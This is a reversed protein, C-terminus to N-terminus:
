VSLLNRSCKELMPSTVSQTILFVCPPVSSFSELLPQRRSCRFCCIERHKPNIPYLVSCIAVKACFYKWSVNMSVLRISTEKANLRFSRAFNLSLLEHDFYEAPVLAFSLNFLSSSFVNCFFFFFFSSSSSPVSSSFFSGFFRNIPTRSRILISFAAAFNFFFSCNTEGSSFINSSFIRSSGFNLSYMANISGFLLNAAFNQDSPTTCSSSSYKDEPPGGACCVFSASMSSVSPPFASSSESSSSYWSKSFSSLLSSSLLLLLLSSISESESSTLFSSATESM